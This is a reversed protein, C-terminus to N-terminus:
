QSVQHELNLGVQDVQSRQISHSVQHELNLDVQDVQSQQILHSVQHAQNSGVQIPQSHRILQVQMWPRNLHQRQNRHLEPRMLRVVLGNM